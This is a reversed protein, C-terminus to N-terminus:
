KTLIMKRTQIFTGANFEYLYVGSTLGAANFDVSYSGANFEEIVLVSVEQGLINFVRITVFERSPLEFYIRTVPNFPNPYNQSLSFKDPIGADQIEKVSTILNTIDTLTWFSLTDIGSREVYNDSTNVVGGMYTWSDDTGDPSKALRLNQESISNLESEDYYLRLAANLGTSNAAQINYYRLIGENGGRGKRPSHYREVTTTGLDASSTLMLGLGGINVGAPATMSRTTTIKGTLGKVTNGPTESLIANSGLTVTHGNLELSGSIISLSSNITYDEDLSFGNPNNIALGGVPNPLADGFVQPVNAKYEYNAGTSFTRGGTLQVNGSPDNNSIGEPSGIKLTGGPNLTFSGSGDLITNGVLELTGDVVFSGGSGLTWKATDLAFVVNAGAKVTDSVVTTMSFSRNLNVTQPFGNGNFNIAFPGIHNATIAATPSMLFDGGINFIGTGIGPTSSTGAQLRGGNIILDGQINFIGLGAANASSFPGIRAERNNIADIVYVNGEINWISYMTNSGVDLCSLAGKYIYVDGYVTHTRNAGLNLNAGRFVLNAALMNVILDGTIVLDASATVGENRTIVLNGYEYNSPGGVTGSGSHVVWSDPSLLVTSGPLVPTGARNYFYADDELETVTNVIIPDIGTAFKGNSYVTLSNCTVEADTWVSDGGAIIVDNSPGPVVNGQWTSGSAWNGGGTGNSFITQGNILAFNSIVIILTLVLRKM